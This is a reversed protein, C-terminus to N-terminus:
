AYAFRRAHATRAAEDVSVPAGGADHSLHAAVLTAIALRGHEGTPYDGGTLLAELMSRAGAVADAAAVEHRRKAGPMGYRTTAASAHEADRVSEFITGDMEDIALIGHRGAVNMWVGHGQEAGIELYLRKGNATVVRVSGARDEFEVGRPNAVKEPSFWASVERPPSGSLWRLLEFYHTGNMAIGLNGGIVSISSWGGFASAEILRKTEAYTPLFRGSHNIALMVGRCKCAAIMADCEDLSTAMPKECLIYRAGNEAAAAVLGAHAPATSAIVVCEPHRERLLREPDDFMDDHPVGLDKLVSARSQERPDAVGAIDVGMQRLALIHRQGM